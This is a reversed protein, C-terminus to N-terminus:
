QHTFVDLRYEGCRITQKPHVPTDTYDILIGQTAGSLIANYKFIEAIWRTLEEANFRPAPAGQEIRINGLPSRVLIWDMAIEETAEM